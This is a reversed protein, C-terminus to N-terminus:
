SFNLVVPVKKKKKNRDLLEPSGISPPPSPEIPTRWVRLFGERLGFKLAGAHHPGTGGAMDKILDVASASTSLEDYKNSLLEYQIEM